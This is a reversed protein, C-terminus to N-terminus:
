RFSYAVIAVTLLGVMALIIEWPLASIIQQTQWGIIVLGLIAIIIWIILSIQIMMKAKFILTIKNPQFIVKDLDFGKEALEAQHQKLAEVGDIMQKRTLPKQPILVLSYNKGAEYTQLIM